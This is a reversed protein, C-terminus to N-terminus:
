YYLELLDKSNFGFDNKYKIFNTQAAAEFRLDM